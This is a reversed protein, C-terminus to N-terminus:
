KECFCFEGGLRVELDDLIIMSRVAKLGDEVMLFMQVHPTKVVAHVMSPSYEDGFGCYKFSHKAKPM